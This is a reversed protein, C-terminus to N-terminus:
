PPYFWDWPKGCRSNVTKATFLNATKFSNWAWWFSNPSEYRLRRFDFPIGLRM